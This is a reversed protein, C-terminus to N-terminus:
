NEDNFAKLRAREAKLMRVLHWTGSGFMFTVVYATIVVEVWGGPKAYMDWGSSIGAALFAVLWAISLKTNPAGM